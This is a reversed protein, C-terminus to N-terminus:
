TPSVDVIFGHRLWNRGLLLKEKARTRDNISSVTAGTNLRASFRLGAEDIFGAEIAPLRQHRAWGYGVLGGALACGLGIVLRVRNTPSLSFVQLIQM